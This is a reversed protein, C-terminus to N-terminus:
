PRPRGAPAGTPPPDHDVAGVVAVALHFVNFQEVRHGVVDLPAGDARQAIGRPHRHAGHDLVEAALENVVDFVLGALDRCRDSRSSVVSMISISSSPLFTETGGPLM